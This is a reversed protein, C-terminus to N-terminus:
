LAFERKIVVASVDDSLEQDGRFEHLKNFVVSLIEQASLLSSGFLIEKLRRLGFPEGLSNVTEVLGDTYLVLFAGEELCDMKQSFLPAENFGLRSGRGSISRTAKTVANWVERSDGGVVARTGEKHTLLVPANHAANVLTIEGTGINIECICFTMLLNGRGIELIVRNLSHLVNEAPVDMGTAVSDHEILHVVAMAASTVLASSVGHGTVDGIYCRLKGRVEDFYLRFWDGGLQAAPIYHGAVGWQPVKPLTRTFLSDQVMQATKLEYEMSARLASESIAMVNDIAMEANQILTEFLSRHRHSIARESKSWVGLFGHCTKKSPRSFIRLYSSNGSCDRKLGLMNKDSSVADSCIVQLEFDNGLFGVLRKEILVGLVSLERVHVMEDTSSQLFQIDQIRERLSDGMVNFNEALVGIEDESVVEARAELDGLALQRVRVTLNRIPRTMKESYLFVILITLASAILVLIVSIRTVEIVPARIDALTAVTIVSFPSSPVEAARVIIDKFEQPETLLEKRKSVAEQYGQYKDLHAGKKSVLINGSHAEAVVGVFGSKGISVEGFLKEYMADIDLLVVVHSDALSKGDKRVPREIALVAGRLSSSLDELKLVFPREDEGTALVKMILESSSSLKDLNLTEDLHFALKGESLILVDKLWPERTKTNGFFDQLGITFVSALASNEVLSQVVPNVAWLELNVGRASLFTSLADSSQKSYQQLQRESEERLLKASQMGISISLLALSGIVIGSTILMLKTRLSRRVDIGASELWSSSSGEFPLGQSQRTAKHAESHTM